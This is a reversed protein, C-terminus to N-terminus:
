QAVIPLVIRSDHLPDHHVRIAAKHANAATVESDGGQLTHSFDPFFASSV